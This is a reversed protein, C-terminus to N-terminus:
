LLLNFDSFFDKQPNKDPCCNDRPLRLCTVLIPERVKFIFVSLQARSSRFYFLTFVANFEFSRVKESVDM